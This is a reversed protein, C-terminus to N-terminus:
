QLDPSFDLLALVREYGAVNHRMSHTSSRKFSSALSGAVDQRLHSAWFPEATRLHAFDLITLSDTGVKC